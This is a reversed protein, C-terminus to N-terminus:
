KTRATELHTTLTQARVRCNIKASIERTVTDGSSACTSQRERSKSCSNAGDARGSPCAGEKGTRSVGLRTTVVCVPECEGSGRDRM